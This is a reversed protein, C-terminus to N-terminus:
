RDVEGFHGDGIIGESIVKTRDIESNQYNNPTARENAIESM